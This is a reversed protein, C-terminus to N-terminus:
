NRVTGHLRISFPLYLEVMRLKPVLNLRTTLKVRRGSCGGSFVPCPLWQTPSRTPELALTFWIFLFTEQGQRSDFRMEEPTPVTAYDSYRGLV